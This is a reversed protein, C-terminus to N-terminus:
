VLHAEDNTLTNSQEPTLDFERKVEERNPRLIFMFALIFGGLTVTILRGTILYSVLSLLAAGEFISLRIVFANRYAVLLSRLDNGKRKRSLIMKFILFSLPISVLSYGVSLYSFLDNLSEDNIFPSFEKANLILGIALLVVTSVCLIM